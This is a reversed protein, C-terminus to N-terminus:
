VSKCAIQIDWAALHGELVLQIQCLGFSRATVSESYDTVVVM